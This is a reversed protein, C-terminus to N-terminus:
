IFKLINTTILSNFISYSVSIQNCYFVTGALVSVTSINFISSVKNIIKNQFDAVNEVRTLNSKLKM